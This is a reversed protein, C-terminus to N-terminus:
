YRECTLYFTINGTTLASLNAGTSTIRASIPTTTTWSPLDGGQVANARNISTGLDADALGKTVPAALANFAVIYESGGTTKGVQWTVATISTGTWATTSDVVIKTLRTKAPLTAIVIDATTAAPKTIQAANYSVAYTTTRLDSQYAISPNDTAGATIEAGFHRLSQTNNHVGLVKSNNRNSLVLDTITGTGRLALGYSSDKYALTINGGPDTYNAVFNLAGKTTFSGDLINVAAVPTSNRSDYFTFTRNTENNSDGAIRTGHNNATYNNNSGQQLYWYGPSSYGLDLKTSYIGLGNANFRAIETLTGAVMSNVAIYGAEATSTLSTAGFTIQNMIKRASASNLQQSAIAQAASTSPNDNTLVIHKNTTAGITTVEIGGNTAAGTAGGTGFGTSGSSYGFNLYAANFEIVGNNQMRLRSTGSTKFNYAYGSSPNNFEWEGSASDATLGMTAGLTSGLKFTNTGTLTANGPFIFVLPITLTVNGSQTTGSTANALVQNATGTITTTAGPASSVWATGNSTLVNGSTGPTTLGTGGNAVALTGTIGTSLPLGTANTLTGSAPTGLAGGNVLPAGATGVNVALATAVGTGLGSVGTSIPLGTANTLTISGPTGLTLTVNGLNLSGTPSGALTGNLTLTSGVAFSVAANGLFTHAQASNFGSILAGSANKTLTSTDVTPFTTAAVSSGALALALAVIRTFYRLTPM